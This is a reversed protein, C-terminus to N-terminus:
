SGALLECHVFRPDFVETGLIHPVDKSCLRNNDGSMDTHISFSLSTTSLPAPFCMGNAIDEQAVDTKSLADREIKLAGFLLSDFCQEQLLKAIVATCVHIRQDRDLFLFEYGHPDYDKWGRNRYDGRAVESVCRIFDPPLHQLFHGTWDTDKLLRDFDAQKQADSRADVAPQQGFTEAAFDWVRAFLSSCLSEFFFSPLKDLEEQPRAKRPHRAAWIADVKDHTEQLPRFQLREVRYASKNRLDNLTCKAFPVLNVNDQADIRVKADRELLPNINPFTVTYRERLEPRRKRLRWDRWHRDGAVEFGEPRVNPVFVLPEQGQAQDQPAAAAPQAQSAM